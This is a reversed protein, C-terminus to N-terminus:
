QGYVKEIWIWEMKQEMKLCHLRYKMCDNHEISYLYWQMTSKHMEKAVQLALLMVFCIERLMIVSAPRKMTHM